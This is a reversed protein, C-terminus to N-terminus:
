TVNTCGGGCRRQPEIGLCRLAREDEKFAAIPVETVQWGQDRFLDAIEPDVVPIPDLKGGKKHVV